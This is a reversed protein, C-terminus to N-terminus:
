ELNLAQERIKEIQSKAALGLETIRLGLEGAGNTKSLVTNTERNMEQLLFDIKKGVEGGKSILKILEAAHVKLRDVEEAIDSREALLAAEQALRQPDCGAGRLLENLRDTLRARLAPLVGARLSALEQAAQQISEAFTRILAAIEAGERERFQNLGQLAKELTAMLVTEMEGPSDEEDPASLMGPIRIAASFDPESEIGFDRRAEAIAALYAAFLPRNLATGIDTRAPHFVIRVDVHGRLVFQKVASRLPAEFLELSAPVHTHVDLARHNVSKITIVVEGASGTQRVRAFGTMSRLSM